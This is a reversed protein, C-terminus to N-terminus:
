IESKLRDLQLLHYFIDWYKANNTIKVPQFEKDGLKLIYIIPLKGTEEFYLQGLAAGQVKSEVYVDRGGSKYDVIALEGDVLGDFDCTGGFSWLESVRQCEVHHPVVNHKDHWEVFSSVRKKAEEVDAPAFESLDPEVKEGNMESLLLCEIIFHTIVGVDAAKDRVKNPDRGAMAERRAWGVLADTKWGLNNIITTVGKVISGDKLKYRQHSKTKNYKKLM